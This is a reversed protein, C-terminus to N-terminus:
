AQHRGAGSRAVRRRGQAVARARVARVAGAADRGLRGRHGVGIGGERGPRGRGGAGQRGAAAERGAQPRPAAVTRLVEARLDAVPGPAGDDAAPRARAGKGPDPKISDIAAFAEAFISRARAEDFPWLTDAVESLIEVQLAGPDLKRAKDEVVGLLWLAHQQQETMEVKEAKEPAKAQGTRPKPAPSCLCLVCLVISLLSKM